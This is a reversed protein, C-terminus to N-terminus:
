FNFLEKIDINLVNAIEAVRKVSPNRQGSEIQQLYSYDIKAQFAVEELTLDRKQRWERIKKGLKQNVTSM